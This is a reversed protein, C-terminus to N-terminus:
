VKKIGIVMNDGYRLNWPGVRWNSIQKERIEELLMIEIVYILYKMIVYLMDENGQHGM